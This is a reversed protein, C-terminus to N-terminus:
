NSNLSIILYAQTAGPTEVLRFITLVQKGQTWMATKLMDNAANVSELAQGAIDGGIGGIGSKWGTGTLEKDYFGQVAEWSADAPLRYVKQEIKGGVGINQRISADQEMNNALTDAIPDEGPQLEVAGPFVPLDTASTGGGACGSSVVVLILVLLIVLVKSGAKNKM